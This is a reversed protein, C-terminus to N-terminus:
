NSTAARHKVPQGTRLSVRYTDGPACRLWLVAELTSDNVVRPTDGTYLLPVRLRTTDRRIEILREDCRRGDDTAGTRGTVLWIADGNGSQGVM